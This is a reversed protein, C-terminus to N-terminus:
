RNLFVQVGVQSKAPRLAHGLSCPSPPRCNGAHLAAIHGDLVSRRSGTRQQRGIPGDAPEANDAPTKTAMGM